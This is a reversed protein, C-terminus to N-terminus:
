LPIQNSLQSSGPQPSYRGVVRGGRAAVEPSEWFWGFLGGVDQANM